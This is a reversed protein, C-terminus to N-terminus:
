FAAVPAISVSQATKTSSPAVALKTGVVLSTKALWLKTNIKKISELRRASQRQSEM